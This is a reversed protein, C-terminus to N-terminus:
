AFLDEQRDRREEPGPAVASVKKGKSANAAPHATTAAVPAPRATTATAPANAAKNKSSNKSYRAAANKDKAANAALAALSPDAKPAGKFGDKFQMRCLRAYEGDHELLEKHAGSEIIRGRNIVFIMDANRITSLRHAIVLTTRNKMLNDLAQQVAAESKTDLASTAEDLILIPANKILARAISIRQKQGGSLLVGREGVRTDYGQPSAMIFEHANAAKAAKIVEAGSIRGGSDARGYRINNGITDDFLLVDQSVYSIAHRLDKIRIKRIDVGDLTIVGATADFFRPILSALTTKGGGSAGVLAVTRGRPIKFSIDDLVPKAGDYSFGVNRFEIDGKAGALAVADKADSIGPKADIIEYVRAAGAMAMNFQVRFGVLSKLPKYISVWAGLFVVFGGTSLGGRAIQWGGFIIIGAIVLGSLTEMVPSVSAQVRVMERSTEYMAELQERMRADERREMGYSKIVKINAISESLRGMFDAAQAGDLRAVSKSKGNIRKIMVAGIPFLVLVFLLIRWSYWLMIAIMSICTVVDKLVHTIFNLAIQAISNADNVARAVLQSSPNRNFYGMDLTLIHSFLRQRIGMITKQTIATMMMTQAYYLLGKLFYIGIIQLCLINLVKANESAFGEDFVPKLLAVGFAELASVAATLGAALVLRGIYKKTHERWIRRLLGTKDDKMRSEMM